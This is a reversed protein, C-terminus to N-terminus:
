LMKFYKEIKKLLFDLVLVWNWTSELGQFRVESIWPNELRTRVRVVTMSALHTAAWSWSIAPCSSRKALRIKACAFSYCTFWVSLLLFCDAKKLIMCQIMIYVNLSLLFFRKQRTTLSRQQCPFFLMNIIYVGTFHWTLKWKFVQYRWMKDECM